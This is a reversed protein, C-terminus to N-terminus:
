VFFYKCLINKATKKEIKTAPLVEAVAQSKSGAISFINILLSWAKINTIGKKIITANAVFPM